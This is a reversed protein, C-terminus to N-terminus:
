FIQLKGLIYERKFLSNYSLTHKGNFLTKIQIFAYVKLKQRHIDIVSQLNSITNDLADRVYRYGVELSTESESFLIFQKILQFSFRM